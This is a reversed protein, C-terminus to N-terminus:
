RCILEIVEKLKEQGSQVYYCDGNIYLPERREHAMVIKQQYLALGVAIGSYFSENESIKELIEGGIM